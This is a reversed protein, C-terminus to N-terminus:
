VRQPEHSLKPLREEQGAGIRGESKRGGGEVM